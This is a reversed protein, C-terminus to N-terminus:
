LEEKWRAKDYERHTMVRLVFARGYDYHLAAVLRYKNGGIDFVAVTTGSAVKVFDVTAGFTLKVRAPNQWQAAKTTAYWQRLPEHADAHGPLSWFERLRRRSIIRM